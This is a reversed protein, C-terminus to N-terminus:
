QDKKTCSKIIIKSILFLVEPNQSKSSQIPLTFSIPFFIDLKYRILTVFHLTYLWPQKKNIKTSFLDHSSIVRKM